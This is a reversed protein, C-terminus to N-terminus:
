SQAATLTSHNSPRFDRCAFCNYNRSTSDLTAPADLAELALVQQLCYGPKAAVDARHRVVQMVWLVTSVLCYRHPELWHRQSMAKLFPFGAQDTSSLLGTGM